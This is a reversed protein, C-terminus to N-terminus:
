SGWTKIKNTQWEGTAKDKADNQLAELHKSL